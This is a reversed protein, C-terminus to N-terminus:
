AVTEGIMRLFCLQAESNNDEDAEESLFKVYLPVIRGPGIIPYILHTLFDIPATPRGFYNKAIRWNIFAPTSALNQELTVKLNKITYTDNNKIWLLKYPSENNVFNGLLFPSVLLTTKDTDYLEIPM